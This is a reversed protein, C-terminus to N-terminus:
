GGPVSVLGKGHRGQGMSALIALAERHKEEAEGALGLEELAAALDRLNRARWLPLSLADCWTLALELYRRAEEPVGRALELEGLTRLMLAQGFGDQM